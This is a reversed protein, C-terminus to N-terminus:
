KRHRYKKKLARLHDMIEKVSPITGGTRGYFEVPALGNVALRVDELMQGMNMEVVEVCRVNKAAAAIISSPFPYLTIPRIMGISVGEQQLLQIAKLCIRSAIGFAVILIEATEIRYLEWQTHNELIDKYKNFLHKTHAELDDLPPVFLSKIINRSGQKNAGRAAWAKRPIKNQRKRDFQVKEMMQGLIGDTLLAVPNRYKDALDFAQFTMDAMEQVSNPALVILHFDGHGPSKTLLWYDSQSPTIFGLGPGARCVDVIVCPLEAGALYSLGESMLSLGPGSTSTMVRAGAAAAGYVMNIAAVESESQIFTGGVKPLHVSMYELLETQPTIPYGYFHRCGAKIAADAIAENGKMLKVEHATM